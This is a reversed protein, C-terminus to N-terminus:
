YDFEPPGFSFLGNRLDIPLPSLEKLVNVLKGLKGHKYTNFYVKGKYYFDVAIYGTSYQVTEEGNVDIYNALDILAKVEEDSLLKKDTKEIDSFYNKCSIPDYVDERMVGSYCHLVNDKDLVFLYAPSIPGGLCDNEYLGLKFVYQNARIAFVAGIIGGTVLLAVITLIILKKVKSKM